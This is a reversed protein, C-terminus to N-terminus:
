CGWPSVQTDPVVLLNKKGDSFSCVDQSKVELQARQLDAEPAKNSAFALIEEATMGETAPVTELLKFV